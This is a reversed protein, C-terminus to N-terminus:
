VRGFTKYKVILADKIKLGNVYKDFEEIKSDVVKIELGASYPFGIKAYDLILTSGKIIGKKVM